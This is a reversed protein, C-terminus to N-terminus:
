QKENKIGENLTLVQRLLSSNSYNAFAELDKPLCRGHVGRKGNFWVDLHNQGIWKRKYMIEKIKEYNAGNRQALDYIENAFIVKTAYFTNIAYKVTEATVSDTLFTNVGKFRSEYLGRLAEGWAPVDSGIVIIDPHKSDYEATKETLFEPNSVIAVNYKEVLNKVTGPTVTSRNVIVGSCGIESLQKVVAEIASIDCSGNVTPTPLCLFIFKCHAAENLTINSDHRSFHKKIGFVQATTRGITGYGIVCNDVM